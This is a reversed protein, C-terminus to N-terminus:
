STIIPLKVFFTTGKEEESEFRIDGGLQQAISKVIYLGLGSGSSATKATNSARYFREFLKSQENKPIGIGNDKFAIEVTEKDVQASIALTGPHRSYKVANDILNQFVQRLRVKDGEVIINEPIDESITFEHRTAYPNLDAIVSNMLEKVNLKQIDMELNGREIKTIDLMENVMTILRITSVDIDDLLEHQAKNLEGFSEDVLMEVNGRMATLPTRLQHSAVAVLESKSRELLKSDTIDFFLIFYGSTETGTKIHHFFIEYVRGNGDIEPVHFTNGEICKKYHEKIDADEFHSLFNGLISGHATNKNIDLLKYAEDNVFVVEQKDDLLIGGGRMNSTVQLLKHKEKELEETRQKVREEVVQKEEELDELLNITAMQSKELDQNKTEFKELLLSLAETKEKVIKELDDYSSQLRSAMKNFTYALKGIEDRSNIDVRKSLKGSAMEEATKTLEELPKVITRNSFLLGVFLTLVVGLLSILTILVQKSKNSESVYKVGSDVQGVLYQDMKEFAETIPILAIMAEGELSLANVHAIEDNEETEDADAAVHADKAALAENFVDEFNNLYLQAEVIHSSFEAGAAEFKFRNGFGESQWAQYTSGNNLQKFASSESGLLLADLMMRARQMSTRFQGVFEAEDAVANTDHSNLLASGYLGARLVDSHVEQLIHMRPIEETVIANSDQAIKSVFYISMASVLVIVAAIFLRLLFFKFQIAHSFHKKPKMRNTKNHGKL